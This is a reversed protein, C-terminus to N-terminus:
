KTPKKKADEFGGQLIEQMMKDLKTSIDGNKSNFLGEYGDDGFFRKDEADKYIDSWLYFLVKNVFVDQSIPTDYNKNMENCVIFRNGIQKDSSGNDQLIIDNLAKIVKGWNFTNSGIKIYFQEADAYAIPVYKWDWRRKFASDMPFLSQDSTNMSARLLMNPPLVLNEGMAIKQAVGTEGIAYEILDIKDQTFQLGNPGFADDELLCKRIDEESEIPYQSFGLNRDLLQFIDGFIQSCNGRNIEEIILFVQDAFPIYPVMIDIVSTESTVNAISDTNNSQETQNGNSEGHNSVSTDNPRESEAQETHGASDDSELGSNTEDSVVPIQCVKGVLLANVIDLSQEFLKWARIYAKIFAQKSFQYIIKSDYVPSGTRPDRLIVTAGSNLGYQKVREVTPKYSGVFTSYDSDPYFTTRFVNDKNNNQTENKILRSKGTGPAGYYIMQYHLKESSNGFLIDDLVAILHTYQQIVGNRRGFLNLADDFGKYDNDGQKIIRFYYNNTTGTQKFVIIDGQACNVRVHTYLDGVITPTHGTQRIKGTILSNSNEEIFTSCLDHPNDCDFGFFSEASERNLDIQRTVDARTIRKIYIM